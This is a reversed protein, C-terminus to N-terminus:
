SAEGDRDKQIRPRIGRRILDGLRKRFGTKMTRDVYLSIILFGIGTKEFDGFENSIM